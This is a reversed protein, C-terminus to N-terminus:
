RKRNAPAGYGTGDKPGEEQYRTGDGPGYTKGAKTKASTGSQTCSGDRLRQQKQIKNMNGTQKQMGQGKGSAFAPATLALSAIMTAVVIGIKTKM